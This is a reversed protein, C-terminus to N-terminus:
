QRYDCYRNQAESFPKVSFFEDANRAIEEAAQLDEEDIILPIARVGALVDGQEVVSHTHRSSCSIDPVLNIRTLAPVDVKLLGRHAAKLQIKGESPHPDFVVGEAPWSGQWGSLRM